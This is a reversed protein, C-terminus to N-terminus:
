GVVSRISQCSRRTSYRTRPVISLCHLLDLLKPNLGDNSPASGSADMINIDRHLLHRRGEPRWRCQDPVPHIFCYLPPATTRGSAVACHRDSPRPNTSHTSLVALRPDLAQPGWEEKKYRLADPAWWGHIPQAGGILVRGLPFCPGLRQAPGSIL